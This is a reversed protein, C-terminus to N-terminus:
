RDDRRQRAGSDRERGKSKDVLPALAFADKSASEDMVTERTAALAREDEASLKFSWKHATLSGAGVQARHVGRYM